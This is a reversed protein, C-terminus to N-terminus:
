FSCFLFGTNLLIGLPSLSMVGLSEEEDDTHLALILTGWRPTEGRGADFAYYSTFDCLSTRSNQLKTRGSIKFPNLTLLALTVQFIM